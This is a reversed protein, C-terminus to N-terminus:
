IQSESIQRDAAAASHKALFEPVTSAVEVEVPDNLDDPVLDSDDPHHFVWERANELTARNFMSAYRTTPPLQWDVGGAMVESISVGPLDSAHSSLVLGIYRTLPVTIAMASGVGIGALPGAEADRALTIPTDCTLLSRRHFRVLAWSRGAFYPYVTPLSAALHEAFNGASLTLAPGGARNGEDWLRDAEDSTLVVGLEQMAWEEFAERDGISIRVQMVLRMMQEIQRRRNPGRLFQVALFTALTERDLPDLPWEEVNKLRRFVRATDSELGALTREVVDPGDVADPITYFDTRAAANLTSQV